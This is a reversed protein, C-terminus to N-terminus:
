ETYFFTLCEIIFEDGSRNGKVECLDKVFHSMSSQQMFREVLSVRSYEKCDDNLYIM